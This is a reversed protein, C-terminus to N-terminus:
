ITFLLFRLISFEILSLLKYPRIGLILIIIIFIFCIFSERDNLDSYSTIYQTTLPGNFLRTYLWISYPATIVLIVTSLIVLYSIHNISGTLILTEGVFSSTGPLAMNALIFIFFYSALKPYFQNLGKLYTIFRTQYREYIFGVSLFLGSSVIGHSLMIFIAGSIGILNQSFLGFLTYNMHGISSYAILKKFDTQVIAALSSYFISLAAFTYIISNYYYNLSAFMPFMFRIIGYGAIKLLIGALLVSGVTPAESHADPLWLHFPWIPMKIAFPFFIAYWWNKESTITPGDCILEFISTSGFNITLLKIIIYLMFLSSILTYLFFQIAAYIKKQKSGWIGIIIFMPILISEFFVFFFFLDLTTFVNILFFKSVMLLIFFEKVNENNFTWNILICILILFTTLILFILSIADIGIIFKIPKM